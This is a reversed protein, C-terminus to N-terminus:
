QAAADGLDVGVVEWGKARLSEILNARRELGGKQPRSCGCPSLYGYTQGTLFLVLDPKRDSPWTKFDVSPAPVPVPDASTGPTPSESKRACSAAVVLLGALLFGGAAARAYASGPPNSVSMLPERM